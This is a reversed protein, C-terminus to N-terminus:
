CRGTAPVISRCFSAEGTAYPEARDQMATGVELRAASAKGLDGSRSVGILM